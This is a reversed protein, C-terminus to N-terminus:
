KSWVGLMNIMLWLIWWPCSLNVLSLSFWCILSMLLILDLDLLVSFMFAIGKTAEVYSSSWVCPFLKPDEPCRGLLRACFNHTNKGWARWVSEGCCYTQKSWRLKTKVVNKNLISTGGYMIWFNKYEWAVELRVWNIITFYNKYM